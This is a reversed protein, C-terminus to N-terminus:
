SPDGSLAQAGAPTLRYRQRPHRPTEPHTQNLLGAEILPRIIHDRFKSRNSRGCAAMLESLSHEQTSAQLVQWHDPELSLKTGAQDRSPGQKTGVQDPSLASKTGVQHGDPVLDEAKASITAHFTVTLIGQHDDFSPAPIGHEHCASIIRNTGRGWVEVAGTRHFAEAILPNRPISRHPGSLDALSLGSPLTGVSRIEIRDDFVAVALYGSPNAYDRHMVANLLAERLAAAPVPQRDERNISGAPFRAALPLTRDLWAIAERITAFAHLHDQRNDLIDDTVSSGRFRGLKLLAQPYDPLFRTGYLIQAAQTIIGNRRLGLRDLIDGPEASTEPSIRRQAIAAERTYRIEDLDLDDLSVDIADQNEWRRRAHARDLLMAEYRDQPLPRTTSQSRWYPRGDFCYPRTEDQATTHLVIVQRPNDPIQVYDVSVPAPPEFRDLLAALDRRTKDSVEQGLIRGRDDIGIMVCGGTGNLMACLSQGAPVLQGTSRKFELTESEGAQVLQTLTHHDM